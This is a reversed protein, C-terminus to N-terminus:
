RPEILGRLRARGTDTIWRADKGRDKRLLQAVGTYYGAMGRPDMGAAAAIRSMEKRAVGRHENDNIAAVERLVVLMSAASGAVPLRPVNREPAAAGDGALGDLSDAFARAAAILARKFNEDM